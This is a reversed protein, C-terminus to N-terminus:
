EVGILPFHINRRDRLQSGFDDFARRREIGGDDDNARERRASQGVRAVDALPDGFLEGFGLDDHATALRGREGRLNRILKGVGACGVDRRTQGLGDVM